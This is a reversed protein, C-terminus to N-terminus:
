LVTKNKKAVVCVGWSDVSPARRTMWEEVGVLELGNANLLRDIEPLFLYRMRHTEKIEQIQDSAREKIFVSYNVDVINITDHVVPEALRTVLIRENSFRKVRMTPRQWLVAPGYWFDFVFLGGADLHVSATQIMAQLDSETAQYSLVHFLSTVVDFRRLSRFSRADGLEFSLRM